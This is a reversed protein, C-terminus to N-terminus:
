LNYETTEIVSYNNNSNTNNNNNSDSDGFIPNNSMKIALVMCPTTADTNKTETLLKWTGTVKSEKLDSVSFYGSIPLYMVMPHLTSGSVLTAYKAPQGSESYYLFIGMAGVEDMDTVQQSPNDDYTPAVEYWKSTEVDWYLKLYPNYWCKVVGGSAYYVVSPTETIGFLNQLEEKTYFGGKYYLKGDSSYIFKERKDIIYLYTSKTEPPEPERHDINHKNADYIQLVEIQRVLDLMLPECAVNAYITEENDRVGVPSKFRKQLQMRILEDYESM